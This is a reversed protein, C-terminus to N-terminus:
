QFYAPIGTDFHLPKGTFPHYFSLAQAHLCLRGIPNSRAGFRKDGAIPTGAAALQVRMQSSFDTAPVLEVQAFRGNSKLVKFHTVAKRGGNEVSTAVPKNAQRNHTLWHTMTGATQAPLGEVVAVFTQQVTGRQWDSHLRKFAEESKAFLLLGSVERDLPHVLYVDARQQHRMVHECAISYATEKNETHNSQSIVGYKKDVIMLDDDEFVIRIKNNPNPAHEGIARIAVIDGAHLVTDFATSVCGNVAVQRHALYSKVTNRSKDPLQAILFAFLTTKDTVHLLSEQQRKRYPVAM